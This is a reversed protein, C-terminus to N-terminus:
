LIQVRRTWIWAEGVVRSRFIGDEYYLNVLANCDSSSILNEIIANGYRVVVTPSSYSTELAKSYDISVM